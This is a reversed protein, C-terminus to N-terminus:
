LIPARNKNSNVDPYVQFAYHFVAHNMKFMNFHWIYSNINTHTCTNEM